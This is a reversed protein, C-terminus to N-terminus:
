PQLYPKLKLTLTRQFSSHPVVRWLLSPLLCQVVVEPLIVPCRLGNSFLCPLRTDYQPNQIFPNWTELTM